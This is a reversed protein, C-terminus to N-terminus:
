FSSGNQATFCRKPTKPFWRTSSLTSAKTMVGSREYFGVQSTVTATLLIASYFITMDVYGLAPSRTAQVRLTFQDPYPM